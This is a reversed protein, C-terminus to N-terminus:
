IEELYAFNLFKVALDLLQDQFRRHLSLAQYNALKLLIRVYLILLQM